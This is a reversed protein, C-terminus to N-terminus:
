NSSVGAQNVLRELMSRFEGFPPVDAGAVKGEDDWRRMAVASECFAGKAFREAEEADMIGGQLAMTHISADSLKGRYDPEVACLYRKADAHLRIPETVGQPFFPALARAGARDHRKSPVLENENDPAADVYYGVDHLLAAAVLAEDAGDRRACAAAQLMHEGITVPEGLYSSTMIVEFLAEIRDIVNESTLDALLAKKM